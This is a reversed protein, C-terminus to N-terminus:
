FARLKLRKSRLRCIMWLWTFRISSRFRNMTFHLINPKVANLRFQM